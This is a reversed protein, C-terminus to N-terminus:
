VVRPGLSVRHSEYLLVHEQYVGSEWSLSLSLSLSFLSFYICCVKTKTECRVDLQQLRLTLHGAIQAGFIWPMCHCGPELVDDFKGFTERIAVNSQDVQVCCFVQGMKIRCLISVTIFVIIIYFCDQVHV